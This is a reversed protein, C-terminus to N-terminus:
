FGINVGLTFTKLIPQEFNTGGGNLNQEPELDLDRVKKDFCYTWINTGRLYIKLNTIGIEEIVNKPFSYGLTLDRLRIFDGDYLYRTSSSNSHSNNLLVPKPNSANPNEPTWFDGQMEYGGYSYIFQGDSTTYSRFGDYIKHGFAGSFSASLSFGKYSFDTSFGAMFKPLPSGKIVRQAKAYNTTIFNGNEDYYVDKIDDKDVQKLKDYQAQYAKDNVFWQASGNSANVGAWEKLYWSNVIEGKRVINIGNISEGVPLHTVENKIYTFNASVHWNFGNPDKSKIITGGLDIEVGKNVMDGANVRIDSFGTTMSISKPFILDKTKKHFYSASFNMRRNFFETEFGADFQRIKEWTFKSYGLQYIYGGAADNYNLDYGYLSFSNYDDYLLQNGLEGYSAKIKLLNISSLGSLFQENSIDYAAGVSWFSGWKNDSSFNNLAERRVTGDFYYKKSYNYSLNAAYANRTAVFGNGSNSENKVFVDSAYLGIRGLRTNRLKLFKYDKKYAEQIIRVDFNHNEGLTFYYNLINQVNWNFYRTRENTLRGKVSAGDGHIPNNYIEREINIYEPAFNLIYRFNNLIKYEGQLNAFVRVTKTQTYDNDLIYASNYLGNTLFGDKGLNYSGDANKAPETPLMFYKSLLPNSFYAGNLVSNQKTYAANIDTRITLKDTAKYDTALRGAVRDFDSSRVVGEQTFYNLSSAYTLKDTGGTVGINVNSQSTYNREILKTWNSIPSQGDWLPLTFGDPALETNIYDIADQHTAGSPLYNKVSETLVKNWTEASISKPGDLAKKGFGRELDVNFKAKGQRGKKTTIVIVGAGADAGYLATAAADKLVTYSEIDNANLTALVNSSPDSTLNNRDNSLNGSSIRVGDIIYIPNNNGNVSTVGRLRIQALGGPQGTTSNVSLGSVRGVLAKDFSAIPANAIDAGKIVSATGVVEKADRVRGFGLVVVDEIQTEKKTGLPASFKFVLDDSAKVEQKQDDLNTIVLVDGVKATSLEFEGEDNTRTFTGTGKIEVKSGISPLGDSEQVKGKIQAFALQGTLSLALVSLIKLEKRM